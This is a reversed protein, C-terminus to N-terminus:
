TSDVWYTPKDVLEDIGPVPIGTKVFKPSPELRSCRPFECAKVIEFKDVYDNTEWTRTTDFLYRRDFGLHEAQQTLSKGPILLLEILSERLKQDFKTARGRRLIDQLINKGRTLVLEGFNADVVLNQGLHAVVEKRQLLKM